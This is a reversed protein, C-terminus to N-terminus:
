SYVEPKEVFPVEPDTIELIAKKLQKEFEALTESTISEEKKRPNASDKKGFKLFGASLKKFSVVGAECEPYPNEAQCLYAYCLVQFAKAHKKDSALDEWDSIALESNEVKGTKYDIIRRMGNFNDIRDAKGKLFVPSDRELLNLKAKMEKELELIEIANGKKLLSQESKLFNHVYRKAVEVIILNKGSDLSEKGYEEKFQSIVEAEYAKLMSAIKEEDLFYSKDDAKQYLKELTNHIVTGLTNAAVTEEVQDAEKVGLVYRNYFALPNKIYLSLGSPSFGYEALEKLKEMVEATKPIERPKRKASAINQALINETLVHAPQKEIKLQNLFRSKEGTNLDSPVCDYLLFVKKARQLLRYFYYTYIADRERHTPLGYQKKLDYPIFSHGSRGLPLVGENVSTIIVNEFDMGRSELLGMLQVGEFPEGGLDLNESRISNRYIQHLVRINNVFPTEMLGLLKNFFVHFHFLYENQLTKDPQKLKETLESLNKLFLVPDNKCEGFCLNFIETPLGSPAMGIIKEPTLFVQNKDKIIKITEQVRFGSMLPHGLLTLVDKYYLKEGSSNVKFLLDFFSAPPTQSLPLGMTLNAKEVNEPLSNLMAPALSQDGLIVATNGLEEATMGSLIAGAKKAQGINRSVGLIEINKPNKYNNGVWKFTNEESTYFEWSDKYDRIFLSAAHNPDNFFAQDIDWYIEGQKSGLISQIIKQEAPNLANFGVFVFRRNSNSVYEDINDSAIRYQLGPYAEKESLLKQVFSQHYRPLKNWFALYNEVLETKDPGKSWHELGKISSLYGFFPATDILYQDIENFDTMLTQAWGYVVEFDERETEPTLESYVEYFRFISQTKDLTLLGSVEEMFEGISYVLPSFIPKDLSKGLEYLLFRGARKNPFIFTTKSFDTESSKLDDLVEAIFNKM